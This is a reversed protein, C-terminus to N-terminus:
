DALLVGGFTYEALSYYVFLEPMTYPVVTGVGSLMVPPSGHIDFDTVSQFHFLGMGAATFDKNNVAYSDVEFHGTLTARM